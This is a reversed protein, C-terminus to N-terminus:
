KEKAWEKRLESYGGVDIGWGSRGWIQVGDSELVAVTNGSKLIDNEILLNDEKLFPIGLEKRLKAVYELSLKGEAKRYKEISNVKVIKQGKIIAGNKLKYGKGKLGEKSLDTYEAIHKVNERRQELSLPKASSSNGGSTVGDPAHFCNSFPIDILAHYRGTQRVAVCDGVKNFVNKVIPTKALVPELSAVAKNIAPQAFHVVAVSGAGFIGALIANKWNIKRGHLIDDAVSTGAGEVAGIAGGKGFMKQLPAPLKSVLKQGGRLVPGLVKSNKAGMILKQGIGSALGRSAGATIGGGVLGLIGGIAVELFTMKNIEWGNLVMSIVFSLAMGSLVARGLPTAFICLVIGLILVGAFAIYEKYKKVWEWATSMTDIVVEAM